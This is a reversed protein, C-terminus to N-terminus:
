TKLVAIISMTFSPTTGGIVVDVAIEWGINSSAEFCATYTSNQQAFVILPVWKGDITNRKVISVDCTPSTGSAATIDLTVDLEHYSSVNFPSGKTDFSATKAASAVLTQQHSIRM